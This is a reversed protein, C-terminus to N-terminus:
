TPASSFIMHARKLDERFDALLLLVPVTWRTSGKAAFIIKLVKM